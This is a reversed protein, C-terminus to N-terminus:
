NRSDEWRKMRTERSNNSIRICCAPLFGEKWGIKTGWLSWRKTHLWPEGLHEGSGKETKEGLRDGKRQTVGGVCM